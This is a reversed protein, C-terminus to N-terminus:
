ELKALSRALNARAPAEYGSRLADTLYISPRLNTDLFLRLIKVRRARFLPEPVLGYEARIAAEYRDFEKASKGLIALDLDAVVRADHEPPAVRHTTCLVHAKAKNILASPLGLTELDAALRQASREENDTVPQLDATHPVYVVDHYWIAFKAAVPDDLLLETGWADLEDLMDVIHALTHYYRHPEGYAKVLGNFVAGAGKPNELEAMLAAWHKAAKALVHKEKLKVVVAAPVSRSVQTEWDPDVGVHSKVMSSSVHMLEPLCPVLITEVSPAIQRNEIAMVQEAELDSSNRLGRFVVRAGEEEAVKVVYRGLCVGVAVNPLHEVAAEAMAVREEPTFMYNKRGDVAVLVILEDYLPAMREIINLHGNTIPDLSAAYVAKRKAM